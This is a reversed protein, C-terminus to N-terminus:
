DSECRELSTAFVREFFPRVSWAVLEEGSVADRAKEACFGELFGVDLVALVQDVAEIFEGLSGDVFACVGEFEM